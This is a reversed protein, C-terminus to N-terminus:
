PASVLDIFIPDSKTDGAHDFDRTPITGSYLWHAYSKVEEASHTPGMEITDPDDRLQTWEPKLIRKFFESNRVLVDQHIHLTIAEDGQGAVLKVIKGCLSSRHTLKNDTPVQPENSRHPLPLRSSIGSIKDAVAM